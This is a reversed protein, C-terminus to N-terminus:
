LFSGLVLSIFFILAEGEMRSFKGVFSRHAPSIGLACGRAALFDVCFRDATLSVAARQTGHVSRQRRLGGCQSRHLGQQAALLIMSADGTPPQLFRHLVQNAMAADGGACGAKGLIAGTHWFLAPATTLFRRM